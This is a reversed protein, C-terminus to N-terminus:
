IIVEDILEKNAKIFNRMSMGSRRKENYLGEDNNVWQERDNNNM